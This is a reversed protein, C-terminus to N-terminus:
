LPWQEYALKDMATEENATGFKCASIKTWLGIQGRCIKRYDKNQEFMIKDDIRRLECSIKGSINKTWVYM